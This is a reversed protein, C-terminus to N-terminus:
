TCCSLCEGPECECECECECQTPILGSGTSGATQTVESISLVPRNEPVFVVGRVNSNRKPVDSQFRDKINKAAIEPKLFWEGVEFDKVRGSPDFHFVRKTASEHEWTGPFFIAAVDEARIVRLMAGESGPREQVVVFTTPHSHGSHSYHLNGEEISIVGTAPFPMPFAVTGALFLRRTQRSDLDMNAGWNVEPELPFVLKGNL